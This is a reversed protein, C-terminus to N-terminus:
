RGRRVLIAVGALFLFVALKSGVVVCQVAIVFPITVVVAAVFWGCGCSTTRLALGAVVDDVGVLLYGHTLQLASWLVILQSLM